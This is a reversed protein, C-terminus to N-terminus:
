SGAGTAAALQEELKRIQEKLERMRLERGIFLRNMRELEANKDAIEHKLILEQRNRLVVVGFSLNEALGHLLAEADSDFAFPESSYINLVGLLEGDLQLPIAISARFGSNLAKDRWLIFRPDNEIDQCIFPEAKRISIGTPGQGFANDGWSVQLGKTYQKDDGASAVIKVSRATDHVVMGVWAMRYGGTNVFVQCIQEVLTQEDTARVLVHDCATVTRLAMNIRMLQQEALKRPTIDTAIEIRVFYGDSWEIAQDRCDFWCGNVTNQFEWIYVPAPTGDPKLLRDNTCFPCPGSQGQQLTQWCIKGIADDGWIKRGYDNIYLIEYSQMDTVYILAQISDMIITLRRATETDPQNKHKEAPNDM